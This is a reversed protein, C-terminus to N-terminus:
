LRIGFFNPKESYRYAQYEDLLVSDPYGLRKLFQTIHMKIKTDLADWETNIQKKYDSDAFYRAHLLEHRLSSLNYCGIVYVCDPKILKNIPHNNPVYSSPFNHGEREQTLPGEYRNSIPSLMENMNTKKSFYLILVTKLTDAITKYSFTFQSIPM